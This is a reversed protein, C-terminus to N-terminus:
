LIGAYGASTNLHVELDSRGYIGAALRAVNLLLNMSDYTGLVRCFAATISLPNVWYFLTFQVSCSMFIFFLSYVCM